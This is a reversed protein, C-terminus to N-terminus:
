KNNYAVSFNDYTEIKFGKEVFENILQNEIIYVSNNDINNTDFGYIFRGFKKIRLKSGNYNEYERTKIFEDVPLKTTFLIKPYSIKKTIYIKYDTKDIASQIALNYGKNFKVGIDEQYQNFYYSTFAIFSITYVVILCEYININIKNAIVYIGYACYFIMPIHICNIKNVNIPNILVALVFASVINTLMFFEMNFDKNRLSNYINKASGVIGIIILPLSFKYYLGFQSISNHILKDDQKTILTYFSYINEGINSPAIEESRFGVMKPISIINTKIENIFGSNVLVFLILPLAIIFLVIVSLITYKSLRIKKYYLSYIFQIILIFPVVIWLPAYCYLSLGYFLASILFIKENEIGKIWFYLGLMLFAPALNSELGWRSLMIHWPSITLLFLGLVALKYSRSVKKIILFFVLLTISAFIAQPLRIIETSLNGKSLFLFPITLYSYLSNMGDGWATLYVPNTYGQSDKGYYLMSYAEYGAFAEDQNIGQPMSGLYRFRIWIGIFLIFVVLLIRIKKKKFLKNDLCNELKRM